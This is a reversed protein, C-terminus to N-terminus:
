NTTHKVYIPYPRFTYKPKLGYQQMYRSVSTQNWPLGNDPQRLGQENLITAIARQGNSKALISILPILFDADM